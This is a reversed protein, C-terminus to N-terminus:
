RYNCVHACRELRWINLRLAGRAVVAGGIVRELVVRPVIKVRRGWRYGYVKRGIRRTDVVDKIHINGDRDFSLRLGYLGFGM